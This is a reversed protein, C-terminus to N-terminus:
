GGLVNAWVVARTPLVFGKGIRHLLGTAHLRSLSDEAEVPDAAERM